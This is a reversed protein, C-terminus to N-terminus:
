LSIFSITPSGRSRREAPTAAPSRDVGSAGGGDLPAALGRDQGSAGTCLLCRGFVLSPNGMKVSAVSRAGSDQMTMTTM